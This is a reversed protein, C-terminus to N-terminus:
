NPILNRLFIIWATIAEAIIVGPRIVGNSLDKLTVQVLVFSYFLFRISLGPEM